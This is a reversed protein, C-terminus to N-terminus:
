EVREGHLFGHNSAFGFIYAHFAVLGLLRPRM